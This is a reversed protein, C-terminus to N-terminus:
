EIDAGNYKNNFVILSKKWKSIKPYSNFDDIMRVITKRNFLALFKGMEEYFVDDHSTQTNPKYDSFVMQKTVQCYHLLEEYLVFLLMFRHEFLNSDLEITPEFIWNIQQIIECKFSGNFNQARLDKVVYKIDHIIEYGNMKLYLLARDLTYQLLKGHKEYQTNLVNM